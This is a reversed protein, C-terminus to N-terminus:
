GKKRSRLLAALSLVVAIFSLALSVRGLPSDKEEYVRDTAYVSVAYIDESPIGGLFEMSKIGLSDLKTKFYM